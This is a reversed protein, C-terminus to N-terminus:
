LGSNQKAAAELAQFYIPYDGFIMKNGDKGKILFKLDGHNCDEAGAVTSMEMGDVNLGLWFGSFNDDFLSAADKNASADLTFNSHAGFKVVLADKKAEATVQVPAGGGLQSFVQDFLAKWDAAKSTTIVISGTLSGQFAKVDADIGVAVPGNVSKVLEVFDAQPMQASAMHFVSKVQEFEALKEGNISVSFICKASTPMYELFDASAKGKVSNLLKVMDSNEDAFVESKANIENDALSINVGVGRYGSFFGQVLAAQPNMQGVLKMYAQYNMYYNIDADAEMTKMIEENGVISKEKKEFITKVKADVGKADGIVAIMNDKFAFATTGTTLVDVGDVSEFKKKSEKEIVEKAAGPDKTIALVNVEPHNFDSLESYIFVKASPDINAKMLQDMAEDVDKQYAKMMDNLAGPLELKGNDDIKVGTHDIVKALDIAVVATADEPILEMMQKNAQNCSTILVLLTAVFTLKLLKM